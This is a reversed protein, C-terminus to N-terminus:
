VLDNMPDSVNELIVRLTWDSIDTEYAKGPEEEANVFIDDGDIPTFVYDLGDTDVRMLQGLQQHYIERVLAFRIEQNADSDLQNFFVLDYDNDIELKPSEQYFAFKCSTGVLVSQDMEYWSPIWIANKTQSEPMYFIRSELIIQHIRIGLRLKEFDCEFTSVFEWKPWTM